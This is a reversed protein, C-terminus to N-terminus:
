NQKDYPKLLLFNKACQNNSFATEKFFYCMRLNEITNLIDDINGEKCTRLENLFYKERQNHLSITQGHSKSAPHIKGSQNTILTSKREEKGTLWDTIFLTNM